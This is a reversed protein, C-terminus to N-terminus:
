RFVIGRGLEIPPTGPPGAVTMTLSKGLLQDVQRVVVVGQGTSRAPVVGIVSPDRDAGVSTLQTSGHVDRDGAQVRVGTLRFASSSRNEIDFVVYGDEGFLVGRRVHVVVHNGSREHVSFAVTESRKLLREAILRDARQRIQNELDRRLQGLEAELRGVRAAIGAKVQAEFAEEASVAKFRVLTYAPKTAPVVTLTINVKVSGSGTAIAVTSTKAAEGTARVAIGDDGWTKIEFEPSSALAKSSLKEPFSLICVSGAHVPVDFAGGQPPVLFETESRSGGVAPAPQANAASSIAAIFAFSSLINLRNV